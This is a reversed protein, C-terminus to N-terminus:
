AAVRKLRRKSGGGNHIYTGEAKRLAVHHRIHCSRCLWRVDLPKAYDDHHAQIDETETGCASCHTPRNRYFDGTHVIQRARRAQPTSGPSM